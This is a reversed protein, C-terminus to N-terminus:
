KTNGLAVTTRSRRRNAMAETWPKGTTRGLGKTILKNITQFEPLTDGPLNNGEIVIKILGPLHHKKKGNQYLLLTQIKKVSIFSLNNYSLNLYCLAMNGTSYKVEQIEITNITSFPDQFTGTLGEALIEAKKKLLYELDSANSTDKEKKYKLSSMSRGKRSIKSSTRLITSDNNEEFTEYLCKLYIEMKTHLYKMYRRRTDMIENYTLPFEILTDLIYSAGDDTIHNDSLNLYRLTRNSRLADGIYKAGVDTIRNSSLDLTILYSEGSESFHLKAAIEKCVEDNILCRSLSLGQLVSGHELLIAFNGEPLVLDRLHVETISTIPLMKKLEHITYVDVYSNKITIKQLKEFYPVILAVVQMFVRPINLRRCVTIEALRHMNDYTATVHIAFDDVEPKEM